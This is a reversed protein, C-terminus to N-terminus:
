ENDYMSKIKGIGLGGLIAYSLVLMAVFKQSDRFGKLITNDYLWHNIGGFPGNIGTALIFGIIGIVGIAKVLYGIKEDKYYSFFGYVALSIILLPLLQWYPIFDKAYIYGERWFGYMSAINFIDSFNEIKPAYVKFDENGINNMVTDKATLLPIIWYSNLLTFLIVSLIVNKSIRLYRHKTFWFLFIIIMVILALVVLHLSFGVFTLLFIFKIMEKKENKELLDIFTMLLLPLMAYSLLLYLHGAMIRAYTFPNTMYLLGAYLGTIQSRFIKCSLSYMSYGAISMASLLYIREIVWSTSDILPSPYSFYFNASNKVPFIMDLGFIYNKDISFFIFLPISLFIIISIYGDKKKELWEFLSEAGNNLRSKINEPLTFELFYIGVGFVLFYYTYIAFDEAVQEDGMSLIVTTVVLMILALLIPYNSFPWNKELNEEKDM